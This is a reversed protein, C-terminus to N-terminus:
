GALYRFCTKVPHWAWEYGFALGIGFGIVVGFIVGVALDRDTWLQIMITKREAM